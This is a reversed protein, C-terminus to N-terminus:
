IHILSLQWLISAQKSLARRPKILESCLRGTHATRAKFAASQARCVQALLRMYNGMGSSEPALQDFRSAREAFLGGDKPLVVKPARVLRDMSGDTIIPTPM